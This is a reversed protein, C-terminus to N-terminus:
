FSHFTHPSKSQGIPFTWSQPNRGMRTREQQTPQGVISVRGPRRQFHIKEDEKCNLFHSYRHTLILEVNILSNSGWNIVCVSVCVWVAPLWNKFFFFCFILHFSIVSSKILYLRNPKIAIKVASVRYTAIVYCGNGNPRALPFRGRPQGETGCRGRALLFRRGTVASGCSLIVCCLHFACLQNQAVWRHRWSM